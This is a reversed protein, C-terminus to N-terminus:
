SCAWVFGLAKLSCLLIQGFINLNVDLMWICLIIFNASSFTVQLTFLFTCVTCLFSFFALFIFNILFDVFHKLILMLFVQWNRVSGSGWLILVTFLNRFPIMTIFAISCKKLTSKFFTLFIDCSVEVNTCLFYHHSTYLLFGQGWRSELISYNNVNKYGELFKRHGDVNIDM